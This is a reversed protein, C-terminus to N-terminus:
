KHEGKAFRMFMAKAKRHEHLRYQLVFVNKKAIASSQKERTKQVSSQSVAPARAKM